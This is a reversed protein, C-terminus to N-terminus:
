NSGGCTEDDPCGVDGDECEPCCLDHTGSCRCNGLPCNHEDDPGCTQQGCENLSAFINKQANIAGKSGDAVAANFGEIVGCVSLGYDVDDSAANLLAAVTHFGFNRFLGTTGDCSEKDLVGILTLDCFADTFCTEGGCDACTNEFLDDPDYPHAWNCEHHAGNSDGFVLKWYGPTCGEGSM